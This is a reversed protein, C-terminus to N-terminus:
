GRGTGMVEAAARSEESAPRQGMRGASSWRPKEGCSASARASGRSGSRISCGTAAGSRARQPHAEPECCTAILQRHLRLLEARRSDDYEEIWDAVVSWRDEALPDEVVADLLKDLDNM